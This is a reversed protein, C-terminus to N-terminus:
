LKSDPLFEIGTDYVFVNPQQIVPIKKLWVVKGRCIIPDDNLYIELRVVSAVQLEEDFIARLGGDSINESYSSLIRSDGTYVFIKPHIDGRRFKRKEIGTYEM